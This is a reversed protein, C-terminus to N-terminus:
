VRQRDELNRHIVAEAVPMEVGACAVLNAIDKPLCTGGFGYKGDPGPVNTHSPAIRGDSLIGTLVRDWCLHLNDAVSRLENFFGVKAAFFSNQFLKVAESEDSTMLYCPVSPFRMRYLSELKNAANWDGPNGIINRAPIQADVMACRATLFEPSHVINPLRYKEKLRRTTGIPVTSRLVFNADALLTASISEFFGEVFSLDCALSDKQQPTPLCIFVLDCKLVDSLHHTSRERLRDHCRVEESHELYSRATAQGVVGNGVIGIKM